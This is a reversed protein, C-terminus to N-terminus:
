RRSRLRSRDPHIGLGVAADIAAGLGATEYTHPRGTPLGFVDATLQVAAPSQSGGGSVRLERCGSRRGGSPGSPARACPTPWGRSSRGTCTPGPTSTAGASSRARRRPGRSGSARRGTRSSPSAWRARRSPGSSSTSCRGGARRGLGGGPRGRPRRVRAQVVRGDLLRAHGQARPQVRRPGGGSLAPDIPIAEVYRRHTTNLTATTGYSLAGISPDLAGAGLVECAKDAAAAILPLGAPIGTRRPPRRRSIEGLRGGPPVLEPLM